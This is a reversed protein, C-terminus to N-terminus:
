NEQRARNHGAYALASEKSVLVLLVNAAYLPADWMLHGSLPCWPGHSSRSLQTYPRVPLSLLFCHTWFSCAMLFCFDYLCSTAHCRTPFPCSHLSIQSNAGPNFCFPSRAFSFTHMWSNWSTPRELFIDNTTISPGDLFWESKFSNMRYSMCRLAVSWVTSPFM